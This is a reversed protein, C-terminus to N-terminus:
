TFAHEGRRSLTRVPRMIMSRVKALVNKGLGYLGVLTTRLTPLMGVDVSLRRLFRVLIWSDRFFSILRGKFLLAVSNSLAFVIFSSALWRSVRVRQPEGYLDIGIHEQSERIREALNRAVAERSFQKAVKEKGNAAIRKAEDQHSLFFHIRELLEAKNKFFVIEVGDELLRALSISYESICFGGAAIIEIPRLKMGRIREYLVNDYKDLYTTIGAFNLNIVSNRFISYMEDGSIYLPDNSGSSLFYSVSIENRALFRAFEVRSPKSEDLVGVFSVGYKPNSRNQEPAERPIHVPLGFFHANIGAQRYRDVSVYDTTLVLDAITGYSSSIWDFKFEDDLALLVVMLGHQEKLDAIMFPDYIPSTMEILLLSINNEVIEKQIKILLAHIGHRVVFDNAFIVKCNEAALAYSDSWFRSQCTESSMLHLQNSPYIMTTDPIM